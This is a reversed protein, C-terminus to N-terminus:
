AMPHWIRTEWELGQTGADAQFADGAQGFVGDDRRAVGLDAMM